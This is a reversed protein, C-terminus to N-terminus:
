MGACTHHVILICLYIYIYVNHLIYMGSIYVYIYIDYVIYTHIYIYM